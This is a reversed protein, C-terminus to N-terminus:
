LYKRGKPTVEILGNSKQRLYDRALLKEIIPARLRPLPAGLVPKSVYSGGLRSYYGKHAQRLVRVDGPTLKPSTSHIVYAVAYRAMIPFQGTRLWYPVTDRPANIYTCLDLPKRMTVNDAPQLNARVAKMALLWYAPPEKTGALWEEILIPPREFRISLIEPTMRMKIMAEYMNSM